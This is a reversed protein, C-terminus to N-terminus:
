IQWSIFWKFHKTSTDPIAALESFSDQSVFELFFCWFTKTNLPLEIQFFIPLWPSMSLQLDKSPFGDSQLKSSIVFFPGHKSVSLKQSGDDLVTFKRFKPGSVNLFAFIPSELSMTVKQQPPFALGAPSQLKLCAMRGAWIHRDLVGTIKLWSTHTFPTWCIWLTDLKPSALSFLIM